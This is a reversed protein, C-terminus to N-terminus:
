WVAHEVTVWGGHIPPTGYEFKLCAAVMVFSFKRLKGEALAGM